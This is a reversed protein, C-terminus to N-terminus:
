VAPQRAETRAAFVREVVQPDFLYAGTRGPVKLVFPLDDDAIMRHVTRLSIGHDAAIRAATILEM